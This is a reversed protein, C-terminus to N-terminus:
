RRSAAQVDIWRRARRQNDPSIGSMAIDAVCFRRERGTLIV